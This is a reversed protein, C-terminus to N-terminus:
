EVKYADSPIRAVITPEVCYATAARRRSEGQKASVAELGVEGFIDAEKAVAVELDGAPHSQLIATGRRPSGPPSTPPQSTPAGKMSNIHHLRHSGPKAFKSGGGSPRATDEQKIRLSVQGKVVIYLADAVDGQRFIITGRSFEIVAAKRALHRIQPMDM